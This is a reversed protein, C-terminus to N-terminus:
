EDDAGEETVPAEHETPLGEDDDGECQRAANRSAIRRQKAAIRMEHEANAEAQAIAAVRAEALAAADAEYLRVAEEYAEVEDPRLKVICRGNNRTEDTFEVYNGCRRAVLAGAQPPTMDTFCNAPWQLEAGDRSVWRFGLKGVWVRQAESM